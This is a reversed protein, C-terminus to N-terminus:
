VNKFYEESQAKLRNITSEIMFPRFAAEANELEESRGSPPIQTRPLVHHGDPMALYAVGSPIYSPPTHFNLPLVKLGSGSAAKDRICQLFTDVVIDMDVKPSAEIVSSFASTPRAKDGIRIIETDCWYPCVVNARINLAQLHDLSRTFGVVAFKTACYNSLTPAGGIGAVSSTNIIVGGGRKVMHMTAVKAGKIVGLTNIEHILREAEDDMPVSFAEGNTGVGANLIAIDVGGFNTEAAMFLAKIDKYFRVDCFEFIAVKANAKENLSKVAAEGQERLVDGIVVKAGRDVLATAVALGIGRSAGTIVAVNNRMLLTDKELTM